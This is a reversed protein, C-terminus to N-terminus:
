GAAPLAAMISRANARRLHREDEEIQDQSWGLYTKQAMPASMGAGIAKSYADMKEALTVWAPNEFDVEVTEDEGIEVGAVSLATAICAAAALKIRDIDAQCADVQQATTAAAGTASQNAADPQLMSVPTGSVAAFDRADAKEAELLPRIM